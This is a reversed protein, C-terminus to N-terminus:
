DENADHLSCSEAHHKNAISGGANNPIAHGCEGCNESGTQSEAVPHCVVVAQYTVHANDKGYVLDGYAVAEATTAWVRVGSPVTLVVMCGDNENITLLGFM